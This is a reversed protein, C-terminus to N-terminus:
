ECNKSFMCTVFEFEPEHETIKIECYSILAGEPTERAFDMTWYKGDFSPGHFKPCPFGIEEAIRTFDVARALVSILVGHSGRGDYDDDYWKFQTLDNRISDWTM